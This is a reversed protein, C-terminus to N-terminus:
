QNGERITIIFRNGAEPLPAFLRGIKPLISVFLFGAFAAVSGFLITLIYAILLFPPISILPKGGTIMPWSLVTYITLGFGAAFGTVAGILTFYRVPGPRRGLIKEVEHVPYPYQADIKDAPVGGNILDKLKRVFDERNNLIIKQAM